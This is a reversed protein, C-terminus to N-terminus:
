WIHMIAIANKSDATLQKVATLPGWALTTLKLKRGVRVEGLERPIDGLEKPIDGLEGPIDGLEGPIDGLEGDKYLAQAM